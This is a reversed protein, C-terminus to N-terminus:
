NKKAEKSLKEIRKGAKEALEHNPFKDVLTRYYQIAKDYDKLEKESIEAAAYLSQPAISSEPYHGYVKFYVSAANFYDKLRKEYIRAAEALAYPAKLDDPFDRFVETYIRIAQDYEKFEDEYIRAAEFLAPVAELSQPYKQAVTTYANIAEMYKKLEKENIQAIRLQAQPAQPDDPYELLFEELTLIAKQHMDLEDSLLEAMKLKSATVYLSKSYLYTLKMFESLADVPHDNRALLDSKWFLVKDINVSNPYTAVFQECTKIMMPYIPEFNYDYMEQLFLLYAGQRTSDRTVPNLLTELNERFAQFKKEQVVLSRVRDQAVPAVKSHPYLYLIELNTFFSRIEDKDNHYITAIKFHMEDVDPANPFRRLYETLEDIIIDKFEKQDLNELASIFDRYAAQDNAFVINTIFFYLVGALIWSVKRVRKMQLREIFQKPILTYPILFYPNFKQCTLNQDPYSKAILAASFVDPSEPMRRFSLM